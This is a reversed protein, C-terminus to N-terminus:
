DIFDVWVNTQVETIEVQSWGATSWEITLAEAGSLVADSLTVEMYVANANKAGDGIVTLVNGEIVVKVYVYGESANYTYSQGGITVTANGEATAATFGFYAESYNAFAIKPLTFTATYAADAANFSVLNQNTYGTNFATHAGTGWYTSADYRLKTGETTGSYELAVANDIVTFVSKRAISCVHMETIEAQSWADFAFDIVLGTTGNAVNEPLVATFIVGGGDNNGKSDDVMTLVGDVVSVKWSHGKSADFSFSQGAITVTGNKGAIAYIGFYVESASNYNVAPLTATGDYDGSNFQIMHVYTEYTTKYETHHGGWGTQIRENQDAAGKSTDVVPDNLLIEENVKLAIVHMETIEVQSWAEFNYEIVLGATGNAVDASLTTTFVVEGGDNNDKSDDSVTLVNGVITAKWSHSKSNDFSKSGSGITVTGTGEATIARLGFYVEKCASYNIAPLTVTADYDGSSIQIMHIYTEYKTNYDNNYNGEGSSLREGHDVAGKSTDVTPDNLLVKEEFEYFNDYIIDNIAKIHEENRSSENDAIYAKYNAIAHALELSGAPAAVVLNYLVNERASEIVAPAVYAEREADNLHKENELYIAIAQKEEESGTLDEANEPLKDLAAKMKAGYDVTRSTAHFETIYVAQIATVTVDLRLGEIGYVVSEPLAIVAEPENVGVSNIERFELRTGEEDTIISILKHNGGFQAVETGYIMLESINAGNTYVFDVKSYASYNIAPLVIFTKRGEAVVGDAGDATFNFQAVNMFKNDDTGGAGTVGNYDSDFYWGANSNAKAGENSVYGAEIQSNASVYEASIVSDVREDVVKYWTAVLTMDGDVPKSFDFAEGEHTWGKFVYGALNSVVPVVPKGYEVEQDAVASGGMADFTVTCIEGDAIAEVVITEDSFVICDELTKNWRANEYHEPAAPVAPLAFEDKNEFTYTLETENKDFDVFKVTYTKATFKATLTIDETVADNDFDWLDEGHYWGDFTYYDKEPDAPKGLLGGNQVTQDEVEAGEFKVTHEEIVPDESSEESDDVPDDSEEVSEEESDGVSDNSEEVSEEESDGVPADSEEDSEVPTEKSEESSEISAPESNESTPDDGCGIGFCALAMVLCLMLAIFLKNRM